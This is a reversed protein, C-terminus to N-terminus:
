QDFRFTSIMRNYIELSRGDDSITYRIRYVHNQNQFFCKMDGYAQPTQPEWVCIATLELVTATCKTIDSGERALWNKYKEFWLFLNLGSLNNWFAVSVTSSFIVEERIVYEVSTVNEMSIAPSWGAPYEVSYGWNKNHYREWEPVPNTVVLEEARTEDTRKAAWVQTSIVFLGLNLIMFAFILRGIIKIKKM